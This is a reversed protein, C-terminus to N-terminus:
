FLMFNIALDMGDKGNNKLNKVLVKSHPPIVSSLKILNFNAIGADWLAADFASLNTQGEGIGSTVYITRKAKQNM